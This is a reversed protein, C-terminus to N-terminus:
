LYRVVSSSSDKNNTICNRGYLLASTTALMIRNRKVIYRSPIRTLFIFTTPERVKMMNLTVDLHVDTVKNIIAPMEVHGHRTLEHPMKRDCYRWFALSYICIAKAHLGVCKWFFFESFLLTPHVRLAHGHGGIQEHSSNKHYHTPRLKAM